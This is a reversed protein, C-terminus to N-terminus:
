EGAAVEPAGQVAVGVGLRQLDAFFRGPAVALSQLWLGPRRVTGDLYQLLCAAAAAGTLFYADAHTVRLRAARREGEAGPADGEVEAQFVTGYPPSSFRRLGWLLARSFPAGLRGPAVKMAVMGAPMFLYDVVKNFGAVYFGADRLGPLAEPLRHMEELYMLSCQESGWPPGFDVRKQMDWSSVKGWVGGRLAEVRFDRLEDVLEDLTGPRIDYASWDARMLGAADAREVRGFAPLLARIMAASLGPHIGGDTIFCRGEHIVRERLAELAAIKAATSLQLDFYDAGARLAAGAVTGAHAPTSSAVAVLDVGVFAADLAVGDAADARRASVRSAGYRAGLEKAVRAARAEDRGAIMVTADSEALLLRALIGGAMGSGGLVLVTAGMADGDEGYGPADASQAAADGAVM